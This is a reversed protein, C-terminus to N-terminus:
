KQILNVFARSHFGGIGHVLNTGTANAVFKINVAAYESISFHYKYGQKGGVSGIPIGYQYSQIVNDVVLAIFSAQADFTTGALVVDLECTYYGAPKTPFVGQGAGLPSINERIDGLIGLVDFTLTTDVGSTLVQPNSGLRKVSYACPSIDNINFGDVANIAGPGVCGSVRMSTSRKGYQNYIKTSKIGDPGYDGPLYANRLYNDENIGLFENLYFECDYTGGVFDVGASQVIEIKGAGLSNNAYSHCAAFTHGLRTKDILINRNKNHNFQVGVAIGHANNPGDTIKFGDSNDTCNGGVWVLNGGISEAGLENGVVNHNTYIDYQASLKEGNLCDVTTINVGQAKNGYYNFATDIRVYGIGKFRYVLANEIKFETCGTIKLGCEGTDTLDALTTRNGEFLIQGTISWHDVNTALVATSTNDLPQIIAGESVIHQDAILNYDKLRYRGKEWIESQGSADASNRSSLFAFTSDTSGTKDAEFDSPCVPSIAKAFLGGNLPVNTDFDVVEWATRGTRYKKGIEHGSSIAMANVNAFTLTSSDIFDQVSGGNANPVKDAAVKLNEKKLKKGEGGQEVVFLDDDGVITTEVLSDITAM